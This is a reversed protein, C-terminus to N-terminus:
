AQALFDHGASEFVVCGLNGGVLGDDLHVGFGDVEEGEVAESLVFDGVEGARAPFGKMVELVPLALGIEADSKVGVGHQAVM